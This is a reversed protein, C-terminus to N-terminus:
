RRPRTSSKKPAPKPVPSFSTWEPVPPDSVVSVELLRAETILGGERKVVEYRPDIPKELYAVLAEEVLASATTDMDFSRRRTRAWVEPSISIKQVM